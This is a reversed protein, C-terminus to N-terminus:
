KFFSPLCGSSTTEHKIALSWSNQNKLLLNKLTKVIYLYPLDIVGRAPGIKVGPCQNSCVQYVGVLHHKM